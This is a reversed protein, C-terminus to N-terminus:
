AAHVVLTCWEPTSRALGVENTGIRALRRRQFQVPNALIVPMLHRHGSARVPVVRRLGRREVLINFQAVIIAAQKSRPIFFAKGKVFIFLTEVVCRTLVESKCVDKVVEIM